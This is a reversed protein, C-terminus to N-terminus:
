QGEWLSDTYSMSSHEAQKPIYVHIVAREALIADLHTFDKNCTISNTHEPKAVNAARADRFIPRTNSEIDIFNTGCEIYTWFM